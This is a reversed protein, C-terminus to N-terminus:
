KLNNVELADMAQAVTYFSGCIVIWEEQDASIRSLVKTLAQQVTECCEYACDLDPRAAVLSPVPVSRLVGLDVLYWCVLQLRQLRQMMERYDKDQLVGFVLHIRRQYPLLYDVLWHVAQPNHCVDLLVPHNGLRSYQLRGPLVWSQALELWVSESVTFPSLALAQCALAINSPVVTTLGSVACEFPEGQSSVGWVQRTQGAALRHATIGFDTQYRYLRAQQALAQQEIAAPVQEMGVLVPRNRRIIGAQEAAIAEISDGLYAQHDLDVTTIIALDVDLINTADLRGGLGVEIVWAALNAQQFLWFAALTTYEFYTLAVEGRAQEIAYFAATLSEDAVKCGNIVIRETFHHLHPSTYLGVSQQALQLSQAILQCTSGKGNTGAILFVYGNAGIALRKAVQKVADLGLEIRDISSMSEIYGLWAELSATATLRSM